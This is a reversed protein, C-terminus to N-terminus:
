DAAGNRRGVDQARRTAGAGYRGRAGRGTTGPCGEAPGPGADGPIRAAQGDCHSVGGRPSTQRRQRQSWSTRQM